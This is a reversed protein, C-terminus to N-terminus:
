GRGHLKLARFCAAFGAKPSTGSFRLNPWVPPLTAELHVPRYAFFCGILVVWIPFYNPMLSLLGLLMLFLCPMTAAAGVLVHWHNALRAAVFGGLGNFFLGLLSWAMLFPTLRYPAMYLEEQTAGNAALVAYLLTVATGLFFTSGGLDVAAGLLVARLHPKM